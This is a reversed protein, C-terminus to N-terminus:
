SVNKKNQLTLKRIKRSNIEEEISKEIHLTNVIPPFM